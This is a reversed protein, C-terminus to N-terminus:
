KLINKIKEIAEECEEKTKFCNCFEIRSNDSRCDAYNTNCALTGNFFWFEEGKKPKWKLESITDNDFNYEFGRDNLEKQFQAKSLIEISDYDNFWGEHVRKEINGVRDVDVRSGKYVGFFYEDNYLAKVCDGVKPIVKLDEICCKEANWQKGEKALADFLLQRDIDCSLGKIESLICNNEHMLDDMDSIELNLYSYFVGMTSNKIIEKFIGIAGNNFTVIDGRKFEPEFTTILQNGVQEISVTKCGEPIPFTRKNM